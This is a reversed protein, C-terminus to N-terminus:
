LESFVAADATVKKPDNTTLSIGRRVLAQFLIKAAEARTLPDNPRFRSTGQPPNFFGADVAGGVYDAPEGAPVDTFGSAASPKVPLKYFKVLLKAAEFRTVPRNPLLKGGDGKLTGLKVAKAMYANPEPDTGRDTFGVLARQAEDANGYLGPRVCASRFLIKVFEFRTVAIGHRSILDAVNQLFPSTSGVGAGHALILRCSADQRGNEVIFTL